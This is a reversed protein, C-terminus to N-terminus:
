KPQPFIFCLNNMPGAQIKSVILAPSPVFGVHGTFTKEQGNKQSMGIFSVWKWPSYTYSSHSSKLNGVAEWQQLPTWISSKPKTQIIMQKDVNGFLKRTPIGPDRRREEGRRERRKRKGKSKRKEKELLINTQTEYFFSQLYCYLPSVSGDGAWLVWYLSM